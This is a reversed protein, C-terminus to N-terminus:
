KDTIQIHKQIIYSDPVEWAYFKSGCWLNMLSCNFPSYKEELERALKEASEMDSLYEYEGNFCIDEDAGNNKRMVTWM